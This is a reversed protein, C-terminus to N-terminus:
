YFVLLTKPCKLQVQHPRWRFHLTDRFDVEALLLLLLVTRIAEALAKPEDVHTFVQLGLITM